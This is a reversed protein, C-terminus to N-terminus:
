VSNELKIWCQITSRKRLKRQSFPRGSTRWKGGQPLEEKENCSPVGPASNISSTEIDSIVTSAYAGEFIKRGIHVFQERTERVWSCLDDLQSSNFPIYVKKYKSIAPLSLGQCNQWFQILEVAPLLSIDLAMESKKFADFEDHLDNTVIVFDGVIQLPPKKHFTRCELWLAVDANM